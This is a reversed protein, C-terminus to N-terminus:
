NVRKSTLMSDSKDAWHLLELFELDDVSDSPHQVSFMPPGGNDFNILYLFTGQNNEDPNLFEVKTAGMLQNLLGMICQDQDYKPNGHNDMMTLFISEIFPLAYYNVRVTLVFRNDKMVTITSDQNLQM